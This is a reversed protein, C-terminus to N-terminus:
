RYSNFLMQLFLKRMLKDRTWISHWHKLRYITWKKSHFKEWPRKKQHNKIQYVETQGSASIYYLRRKFKMHLSWSFDKGSLDLHISAWQILFCRSLIFMFVIGMDTWVWIQPNIYCLNERRNGSYENPEYNIYVPSVGNIEQYILM